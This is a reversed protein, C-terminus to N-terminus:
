FAWDWSVSLVNTEASRASQSADFNWLGFGQAGIHIHDWQLKLASKPQVDWRVGLTMARQEIRMLNLLDIATTQLGGLGLPVSSWDNEAVLADYRPKFRSAGIYPTWKGIRRGLLAYVNLGQYVLRRTSRIQGLEAQALWLGDDFSLGLNEYSGWGGNFATYGALKDAEDGIAGPMTSSILVLGSHLSDIPANSYVNLHTYGVKFRWPGSERVLSVDWFPDGELQYTDSASLQFSEQGRGYQAKITWIASEGGPNLTYALDLGDLSYLPIFGYFEPPPRVSTQAYGLNRYDSLMFVDMGVRGVRIQLEPVPRHAVYAWELANGLSPESVKDRLVAQVVAETQPSFLYAAQMAIRNDPRLGNQDDATRQSLDRTFELRDNTSHSYGLTGYGSFSWAPSTVALDDAHARALCFLSVLLLRWMGKPRTFFDWAIPMDPNHPIGEM